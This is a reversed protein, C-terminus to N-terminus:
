QTVEIGTTAIDQSGFTSTQKATVAGNNDKWCQLNLTHAGATLGVRRRPTQITWDYPTTSLDGSAPLDDQGTGFLHTSGDLVQLAVIPRGAGTNVLRAWAVIEVPQAVTLTINVSAITTWSANGLTVSSTGPVGVTTTGAMQADIANALPGVELLDTLQDTLVGFEWGYTTTTDPM